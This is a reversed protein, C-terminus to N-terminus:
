SKRCGRLAAGTALGFSHDMEAHVRCRFFDIWRVRLELRPGEL